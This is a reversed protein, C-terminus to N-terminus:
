FHLAKIRELPTDNDYGKHFSHGFSGCSLVTWGLFTLMRNVEAYDSFFRTSGCLAIKTPSSKLYDEVQKDLCTFEIRYPTALETM